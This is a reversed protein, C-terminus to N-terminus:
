PPKNYEPKIQSSNSLHTSDVQVLPVCVGRKNQWIGEASTWTIYQM